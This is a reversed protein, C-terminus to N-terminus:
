KRSGNGREKREKKKKGGENSPDLGGRLMAVRSGHIQMESCFHLNQFSRCLKPQLM